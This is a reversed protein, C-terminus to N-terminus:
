IIGDVRAEPLAPVRNGLLAANGRQLLVGLRGWLHSIAEGEEQGTHRALASGLKRVERDAVSHWGGFTEAALPLFAIGQARCQEEAGRVKIGYAHDLAFGPTTAAGPMTAQQLPTVVTVDMAADLGGTWHPVFVDAPRRDTGPLLFRGEKTPGLGAAVATEFIADRLANHRSIREGGSGCCLAHDGYIDSMRLCAPCPGPTDFVPLGLRYKVVM